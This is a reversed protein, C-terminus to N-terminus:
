DERNSLIQGRAQMLAFGLLNEGLWKKPDKSLPNDEALGIGWLSDLPSAEVLIRTNTSILFEKLKSNQRFKETNGKIVINFKNKDWIVQNFKEITRGIKKAEAPHKTKLILELASKDDFLAAKQAMMYHEATPYYYGSIEFSSPYWQSLCAKTANTSTQTHGWFFVYKPRNGAQIYNILDQRNEM